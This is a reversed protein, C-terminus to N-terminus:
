GTRTIRSGSWARRAGPQRLSEPVAGVSVFAGFVLRVWLGSPLAGRASVTGTWTSRPVLSTPLAPAVIM